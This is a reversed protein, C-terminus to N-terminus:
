IRLPEAIFVTESKLNFVRKSFNGTVSQDLALFPEDLFAAIHKSQNIFINLAARRYQGGSLSDLTRNNSTKADGDNDQGSLQYLDKLTLRGFYNSGAAYFHLGQQARLWAPLSVVESGIFEISGSVCALSASLVECLTSKGWGNPAELINLTKPMLRFSLGAQM